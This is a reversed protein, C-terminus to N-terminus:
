RLHIKKWHRGGDTTRFLLNPYSFLWGHQADVFQVPGVGGDAPNAVAYSIAPRWARGGDTTRMLTGRGLAIWADDATTVAANGFYGAITLNHLGHSDNGFGGSNAVMRWTHGGDASRFVSKPQEGASPESACFIWVSTTTYPVVQAYMSGAGHGSCPIPLTRWTRGDDVTSLLRLQLRQKIMYPGSVLWAHSADGRALVTGVTAAAPPHWAMLHWSNSGATSTLLNFRCRNAPVDCSSDLRWIRTGSLSLATQTGSIPLQQWTRGGDHTAYLRDGYLWGDRPTAFLMHSVSIDLSEGNGRIAGTVTSFNQWHLGGDLTRSVALPGSGGINPNWKDAARWGLAPTLFTVAITENITRPVAAWATVSMGTVILTMLGCLRSITSMMHRLAIM